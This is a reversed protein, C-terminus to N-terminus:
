VETHMVLMPIHTHMAIKKTVSKHFLEHFFSGRTSVLAVLDVPYKEMHKEIAEIPDKNVEVKLDHQIDQFQVNLDFRIFAAELKKDEGTESVYLGHITSNYKKAIENLSELNLEDNQLEKNTTFLIKEPNTYVANEPVIILSCEVTSIMAAAASGVFISDVGSEGKTGMAVYDMGEKQVFSNVVSAVEGIAFHSEINGKLNPFQQKIRQIELELSEESQKRFADHSIIVETSSYPVYFTNLLIFVTESADFLAISYDIANKANESFDTPLLIKKM